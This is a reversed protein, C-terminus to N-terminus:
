GNGRGKVTEKMEQKKSKESDGREWGRSSCTGGM